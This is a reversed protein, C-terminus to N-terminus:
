KMLGAKGTTMAFIAVTARTKASYLDISEVELAPYPNRIATLCFRLPLGTNDPKTNGGVWATRANSHNPQANLKKPNPNWILVDDGYCVQNTESSGDTYRFVVSYVPTGNPVIFFTNGYIYLTEFKQNLAINTIAEPYVEHMQTASAEGYLYIIGDINLPVHNFVQFGHPATKWLYFRSTLQFASPSQYVSDLDVPTAINNAITRRGGALALQHAIEHRYIIGTTTTGAALLLVV